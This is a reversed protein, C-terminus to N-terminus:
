LDRRLGGVRGTKEEIRDDLFDILEVMNSLANLEAREKKKLLAAKDGGMGPGCMEQIHHLALKFPLPARAVNCM